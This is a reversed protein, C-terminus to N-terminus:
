TYEPWDKPIQFYAILFLKIEIYWKPNSYIVGFSFYRCIKRWVAAIRTPVIINQRNENRIIDFM